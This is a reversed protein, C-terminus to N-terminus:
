VVKLRYGGREFVVGEERAAKPIVLPSSYGLKRGAVKASSYEEGTDINLIRIPRKMLGLTYAHEKNDHETMIELNWIANNTRDGDVHNIELGDIVEDMFSVYVLRHIQEVWWGANNKLRLQIRGQRMFFRAPEGTDKYVVKGFNSVLYQPFGKAEVWYERVELM